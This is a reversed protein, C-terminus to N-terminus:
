SCASATWGSTTPSASTRCGPATRSSSSDRGRRPQLAVLPVADGCLRGAVVALAVNRVTGEREPRDGRGGALLVLLAGVLPLFVITTLLM